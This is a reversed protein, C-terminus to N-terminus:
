LKSFLCAERYYRCVSGVGRSQPQLIGYVCCEVSVTEAIEEKTAGAQMADHVHFAICGDCRVTVAIGLAILEKTKRDILKTSSIVYEKGTIYLKIVNNLQGQERKNLM